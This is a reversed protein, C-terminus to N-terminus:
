PLIIKRPPFSGDSLGERRVHWSCPPCLSTGKTPTDIPPCGHVFGPVGLTPQLGVGGVELRLWWSAGLLSGATQEAKLLRLDTLLSSSVPWPLCPSVGCATLQLVGRGVPWGLHCLALQTHAQAGAPGRGLRGRQTALAAEPGGPSWAWCSPSHSLCTRQRQCGAPGRPALGCPVKTLVPFPM